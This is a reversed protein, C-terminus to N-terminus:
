GRDLGSHIASCPAHPRVDGGPAPVDPYTGPPAQQTVQCKQQSEQPTQVANQVAAAGDQTGVLLPPPGRRM